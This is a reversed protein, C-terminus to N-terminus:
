SDTEVNPQQFTNIYDTPRAKIYAYQLKVTIRYRYPIASGEIESLNIFRSDLKSIFFSNADQQYRAYDSDLALILDEKRDRAAPGRSILDVDVTAQMSVFQDSEATAGNFRNSNGFPRASPVSVAIFLDNDIPQNIKQDWLYVRGNSLNMERQLIECFLLLPTGVMITATATEGDYGEVLITDFQLRNNSPAVLPATYRGTTSNITGGAGGPQVSYAYPPVGAKGAFFCSIRPGVATATQAVHM